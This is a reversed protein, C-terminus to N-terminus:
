LADPVPVTETMASSLVCSDRNIALGYIWALALLVVINFESLWGVVLSGVLAFTV